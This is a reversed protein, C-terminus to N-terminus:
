CFGREKKNKRKREKGFGKFFTLKIFQGCSQELVGSVVESQHNFREDQLLNM